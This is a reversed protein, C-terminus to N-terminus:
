LDASALILHAIQEWQSLCDRSCLGQNNRVYDPDGEIEEGCYLCKERVDEEFPEALAESVADAADVHDYYM